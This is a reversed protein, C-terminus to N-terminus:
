QRDRRGALIAVVGIVAITAEACLAAERFTATRDHQLDNTFSLVAKAHRRAAVNRGGRLEAGIYANLMRGADTNSPQVGDDSPHRQPDYVQQAVSILVERCLHGIAQFQEENEARELQHRIEYVCRDVRSWGTPEVAPLVQEDVGTRIRDLVPRYLDAVHARRSGWTRLDGVSWRGYWQWLDAHQNPDEIGRRRLERAIRMRRAKYDSNVGDIRPGGTAVAIMLDRQAEILALLDSDSMGTSM